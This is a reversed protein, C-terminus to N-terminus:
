AYVDGKVALTSAQVKHRFGETSFWSLYAGILGDFIMSALPLAEYAAPLERPLFDWAIHLFWAAALLWSSYFYGLVALAVLVAFALFEIPVGTSLYTLGLWVTFAAWGALEEKPKLWRLGLIPFLPLFPASIVLWDLRAAFSVFLTTVFILAIVGVSVLIKRRM